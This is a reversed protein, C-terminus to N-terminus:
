RYDSLFPAPGPGPLSPGAFNSAAELASSPMAAPGIGSRQASRAAPEERSPQCEAVVCGVFSGPSDCLALWSVSRRPVESSGQLTGVAFLTAERTADAADPARRPRRALTGLQPPPAITLWERLMGM